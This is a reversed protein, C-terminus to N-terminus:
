SFILAGVVNKANSLTQELYEKQRGALETQM